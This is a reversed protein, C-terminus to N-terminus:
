YIFLFRVLQIRNLAKKADDICVATTNFDLFREDIVENSNSNSQNNSLFNSLKFSYNLLFFNSIVLVLVFLIFFLYKESLRKFVVNLTVWIRM